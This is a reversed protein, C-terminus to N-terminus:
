PLWPTAPARRGVGKRTRERQEAADGGDNEFAKPNSPRSANVPAIFPVLLILTNTKVHAPGSYTTFRMERM